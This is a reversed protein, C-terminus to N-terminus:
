IYKDKLEEKDICYSKNGDIFTFNDQCLSCYTKNLCLKCNKVDQYNPNNCSYYKTKDENIYYEGISISSIHVCNENNNDIIYFENKCKSCTINNDCEDCNRYYKLM